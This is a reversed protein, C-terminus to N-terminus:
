NFTNFQKKLKLFTTNLILKLTTLKFNLISTRVLFELKQGRPLSSIRQQIRLASYMGFCKLDKSHIHLCYLPFNEEGNSITIVGRSENFNWFFKSPDVAHHKLTHFVRRIGLTNRPDEGTLFQGWTAADFVGKYIGIDKSMRKKLDLEVWPQYGFNASFNTPLITVLDPFDISYQGLITMDTTHSEMVMKHSMFELLKNAYTANRFFVLSPVAETNNVIPFAIGTNTQYVIQFPFNPMLLVDCEVQLVSKEPNSKMYQAIAHFRALTSLWFGGRFNSDVSKYNVLEEWVLMPKKVLYTEVGFSKVLEINYEFDSIFILNKDPFSNRFYLINKLAYKPIKQNLFVFVINV